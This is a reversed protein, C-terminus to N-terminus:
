INKAIETDIILSDIINTKLIAQVSEIKEKGCALVIVNDIKQLDDISIGIMRESVSDIIIDGKDDFFSAGLDGITGSKKMISFDKPSFYRMQEYTSSNLPNGISLLATDVNKANTIAQKINESTLLHQKLASTDAIAPSYFYTSNCSYKEALMFSLHNSHYYIASDGFGGILPSITLNNAVLFSAQQVFEFITSGWGIGLSHISEINSEILNACLHGLQQKIQKKDSSTAILVDKLQYKKKIEEQRNLIETNINVISIKVIGKEKAERLLAAVTPRSM